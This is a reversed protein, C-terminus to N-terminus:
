PLTTSYHNEYSYSGVFLWEVTQNFSHINQASSTHNIFRYDNLSTEARIFWLMTFPTFQKRIGFHHSLYSFCSYHNRM